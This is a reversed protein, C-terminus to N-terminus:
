RQGYARMAWSVHDGPQAGTGVPVDPEEGEREGLGVDLLALRGDPLAGLDVAAQEGQLRRQGDAVRLGLVEEVDVVGQELVAVDVGALQALALLEGRHQRGVPTSTSATHASTSEPRGSTVTSFSCVPNTSDCLTQPTGVNM